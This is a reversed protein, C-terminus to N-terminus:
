AAIAARVDAAHLQRMEEVTPAAAGRLRNAQKTMTRELLQRAYRGNGFTENRTLSEFHEYLLPISDNSFDFGGDRALTQLISVLESSTYSEFPIQRSFRSALGVNNALFRRMDGTYGAAIVVIDDRHDEMLKVLTDIAERGFDNGQGTLAYAEDIFLVGGRARNFVDTTKVATHGVYEGVLDARSVEVLQGTRLVGMANLLQGYLRAVSTKGTGPPGAFVLHRSITPTPLGARTRAETSAILDIVDTVERKVADLGVMSNLRGLLDQVAQAVGASASPGAAQEGLDEPLLRALELDSAQPSSSLRYAQRGLMDEFVQRAVRANGFTENRAFDSFHRVLAQRTEYELAYHHTRCLREVIEALEDDSYSEFQITRAFRSELGPNAALFTRMNPSYGAVVVVVEDRHDEMLKVLTDIAERGFDHGGGGGGTSLTYAEDIFLVGGLAEEFRATTKVATGGVHEAVLDSRSVEVLQGSSLVGLSALIRAFIRAVTTKGTGPPGAFVLHRSMPPVHLGAERRRKAIQNLGVLTAVEHKVGALGVLGNLERLLAAVPGDAEGGGGTGRGPAEASPPGDGPAGAGPGGDAPVVSGFPGVSPAPAPPRMESLNGPPTVGPRAGGTPAPVSGPADGAAPAERRGAGSPPLSVPRGNHGTDVGSLEVAATPSPADVAVGGNGRVVGGHLRVPQDTEVLVGPGQNGVIECDTATVSSGAGAKIGPGRSGSIRSRSVTVESPGGTLLGAGASEEVATSSLTPRATGAVEVGVRCGTFRSNSLVATASDALRAGAARAGTVQGNSFRGAGGTAHLGYRVGEISLGHLQPDAEQEIAVGIPVDRVEVGDLRAKSQGTVFVGADACGAVTGGTLHPAAADNVVVGAAGCDRVECNTLKPRSTGRCDLGHGRPRTIVTDSLAPAAHAMTVVAHVRTELIECHELVPAAEDNALLGVEGGLVTTRALYPRAAQQAVVAYQGVDDIRCGELRPASVGVALLAAEAIETFTCDRFVPASPGSTLIAYKAIGHVRVGTYEGAGAEHVIGAGGSNSIAGGRMEVAGGRVHIVAPATADITCAEMRVRGAAVQLLPMREDGGRIAIDQILVEGGAALIAGGAPVEITVTGPGDEAVLVVNQRFMPAERYVGPRVAVTDGPAASDLARTIDTLCGTDRASVSLVSTTM